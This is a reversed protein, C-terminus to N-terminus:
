EKIFIKRQIETENIIQPIALKLTNITKNNKIQILRKKILKIGMHEADAFRLGHLKFISQLTRSIDLTFYYKM